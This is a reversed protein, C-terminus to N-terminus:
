VAGVSRRGHVASPTSGSEPLRRSLAVLAVVGVLESLHVLETTWRVAGTALDVGVTGVTAIAVVGAVPLVGAARHPQWAAVILGVGLALQLAALDRGLHVDPGLTGTIFPVALLVQAVGAMAVIMRLSHVSRRPVSDAVSALQALISGTLDPVDAAASIRARRSIGAAATAFRRCSGCADLHREVEPSTLPGTEGDLDASVSERVDM